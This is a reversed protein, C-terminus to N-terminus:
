RMRRQIANADLAVVAVDDEELFCNKRRHAGHDSSVVLVSLLLRGRNKESNSRSPAVLTPSVEDSSLSFVFSFRRRRLWRPSSAVSLAVGAFFGKEKKRREGFLVCGVEAPAAVVASTGTLLAVFRNVVGHCRRFDGSLEDKISDLSEVFFTVVVVFTVSCVRSKEDTDESFTPDEAFVVVVVFLGVLFLVHPRKRFCGGCCSNGGSGVGDLAFTIVVVYIKVSPTSVTCPLTVDGVFSEDVFPVAVNFVVSVFTLAVLEIMVFAVVVFSLGVVCDCGALGLPMTM